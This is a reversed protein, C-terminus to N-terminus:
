NQSTALMLCNQFKNCLSRLLSVIFGYENMLWFQVKLKIISLTATEIRNMLQWIAYGTLVYEFFPFILDITFHFNKM